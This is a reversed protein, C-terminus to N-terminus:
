LHLVRVPLNPSNALRMDDSLVDAGQRNAVLVRLLRANRGFTQEM